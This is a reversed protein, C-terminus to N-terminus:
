THGQIHHTKCLPIQKRKLASDIAATGYIRRAKGATIVTFDSNGPTVPRRFLQKVHHVEIDQNPCGKVACSGENVALKSTRIIIKDIDDLPNPKVNNLFQKKLNNIAMNSPFEV